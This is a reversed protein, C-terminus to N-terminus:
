EATYAVTQASYGKVDSHRMEFMRAINWLKLKSYLFSEYISNTLNIIQIQFTKREMKLARISRRRNFINFSTVVTLIFRIERMLINKENGIVQIAHM